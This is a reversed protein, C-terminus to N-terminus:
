QHSEVGLFIWPYFPFHVWIQRKSTCTKGCLWRPTQGTPPITSVASITPKDSPGLQGAYLQQLQSTQLGWSGLMCSNYNAQRFAGAAWCVATITPKDSPGLQGAYQAGVATITPKDQPGLQGAYQAGVATITSKNSPGLQGAYQAGVATITPKDSSGWNDLM